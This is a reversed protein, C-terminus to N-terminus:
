EAPLLALLLRPHDAVSPHVGQLGQRHVAPWQRQHNSAACRPPPERARQLVIEADAEKMQPRIDWALIARAAGDLVSCLYDFTGGWNINSFDVHWHEHPALPQVFGTGKRSPPLLRAGIIGAAKRVRYTTAPRVAAVERDLMMFTLRRYDELLYQQAFDIIATREHPEIWHDRAIM